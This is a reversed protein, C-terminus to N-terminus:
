RLQRGYLEPVGAGKRIWQATSWLTQPDLLDKYAGFMVFTAPFSFLLEYLTYRAKIVVETAPTKSWQTPLFPTPEGGAGFNPIQEQGSHSFLSCLIKM